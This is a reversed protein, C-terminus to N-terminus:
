AEDGMRECAAVLADFLRQQAEDTVATAEPHWQV